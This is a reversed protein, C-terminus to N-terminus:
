GFCVRAERSFAVIGIRDSERMTAIITKAAHKVVDLVSLGTKETSPLFNSFTPRGRRLSGDEGTEGPIVVQASMSSSTDICLVFDVPARGLKVDGDGEPKAPPTVTILLHESSPDSALDVQLAQRTPELVVFSDDLPSDATM